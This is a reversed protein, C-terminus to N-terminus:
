LIQWLVQPLYRGKSGREDLEVLLRYSYNTLKLYTSLNYKYDVAAYLLYNTTYTGCVQSFRQGYSCPVTCYQLYVGSFKNSVPIMFFVADYEFM